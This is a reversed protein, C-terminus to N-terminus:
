LERTITPIADNFYSFPKLFERKTCSITTQALAGANTFVSQQFNDDHRWFSEGGGGV